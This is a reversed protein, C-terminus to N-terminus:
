FESFLTVEVEEFLAQHQRKLICYFNIMNDNLDNIVENPSHPKAFFLAGGGFFPECYTRHKPILTLLRPILQQKGGWYKICTKTTLQNSETKM